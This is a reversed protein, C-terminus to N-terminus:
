SRQLARHPWVGRWQTNLGSEEPDSASTQVREIVRTFSATVAYM